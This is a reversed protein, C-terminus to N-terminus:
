DAQSGRAIVKIQSTVNEEFVDKNCNKVRTETCIERNSQNRM